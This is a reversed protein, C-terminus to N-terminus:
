EHFIMFLQFLCREIHIIEKYGNKKNLNMCTIATNIMIKKNDDIETNSFLLNMLRIFLEDIDENHVQYDYLLERLEGLSSIKKDIILKYMNTATTDVKSKYFNNLMLM